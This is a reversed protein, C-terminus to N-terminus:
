KEDNARDGTGAKSEIYIIDGKELGDVIQVSIGDTFGTTVEQLKKEDGTGATYVYTKGNKEIVAKRSVYLVDEVQDTVFTVDGTMGGYLKTTDGEIQVAVPYSVITSSSAASTTIEKVIGRYTDDLYATFSITVHDGVQVYPIDEEAIDISITYDQEQVYSFLNGEQILYDGADYNVAVILGSGEAYIVGEGVFEELALFTDQTKKLETQATDVAEQLSEVTYHYIEEALTGDLSATEYTQKATLTKRDLQKQVESAKVQVEIIEDQKEAILERMEMRSDRAKEYADKAQFWADRLTIYKTITSEDCKEFAAEAEEYVERLDDYDEWGDELEDELQKIEMELIGTRATIEEIEKQM